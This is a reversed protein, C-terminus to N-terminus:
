NLKLAKSPPEPVANLQWLSEFEQAMLEYLRSTHPYVWMPSYRLKESYLHMILAALQDTRTLSVHPCGRKMQRVKINPSRRSLRGFHKEMVEIDKLKADYNLDAESEQILERLAPNQESMLLIRVQCGEQAKRVLLDDIAKSSRWYALGIGMLEICRETRELIPQWVDVNGHATSKEYFQEQDRSAGGLPPRVGFPAAVVWGAAEFSKVHDIIEIIYTKEAFSRIRLDYQVCRLDQIDFPLLQGKEILIIVPRAAAQAIALEYFVNPNYGTLVAVCLDDNLIARFMQDSIKGAERLHDSRFAEIGCADLAPKIIFDYVDDAHQRAASGDAGIPSIVFCRKKQSATM